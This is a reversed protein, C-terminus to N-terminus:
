SATARKAAKAHGSRTRALAIRGGKLQQATAPISAKGDAPAVRHRAHPQSTRLNGRAVTTPRRAQSKASTQTSAGDHSASDQPVSFRNAFHDIRATWLSVFWEPLLNGWICKRCWQEGKLMGEDTACMSQWAAREPHTYHEIAGQLGQQHVVYREANDPYHGLAWKFKEAQVLFMHAAARANDRADWISGDGYKEFEYDSLQFLGKYSGTRARPNFSSEVKAIPMMM